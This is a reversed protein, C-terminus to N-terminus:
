VLWGGSREHRIGNRLGVPTADGDPHRRSQTFESLFGDDPCGASTATTVRMIGGVGVGRPRTEFMNGSTFLDVIETFSAPFLAQDTESRTLAAFKRSAVGSSSMFSANM